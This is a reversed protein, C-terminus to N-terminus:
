PSVGNSCRGVAAAFTGTASAPADNTISSVASSVAPAVKRRLPSRAPRSPRTLPGRERCRSAASSIPQGVPSLTFYGGLGGLFAGATPPPWAAPASWRPPATGPWLRLRRDSSAPTSGTRFEDHLMEDYMEDFSM